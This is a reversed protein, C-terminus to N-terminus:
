RSVVPALGQARRPADPDGCTVLWSALM